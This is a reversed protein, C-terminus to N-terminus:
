AAGRRFLVRLLGPLGAVAPDCVEFVDDDVFVARVPAEASRGGEPPPAALEPCAALMTVAKSQTKPVVHVGAVRVGRQALIESIEAAHSNRTVVHTPLLAALASLEADLSHSGQAACAPARAHRM